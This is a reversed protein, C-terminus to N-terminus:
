GKRRSSKIKSEIQDHIYLAASLQSPFAQKSMLIGQDAFRLAQELKGDSLSVRASELALPFRYAIPQSEKSQVARDLLRRKFDGARQQNGESNYRDFLCGLVGATHWEYGLSSDDLQALTGQMAQLAKTASDSPAQSSLLVVINQLTYESLTHSKEDDIVATLQNACDTYLQANNYQIAVRSLFLLGNSRQAPDLAIAKRTSAVAASTQNELLDWQALLLLARAQGDQNGARAYEKFATDAYLHAEGGFKAFQKPKQHILGILDQSLQISVMAREKSAGLEQYIALSKKRLEIKREYTSEDASTKDLDDAMAAYTNAIEKDCASVAHAQRLCQYRLATNRFLNANELSKSFQGSRCLSNLSRQMANKWWDISQRTLRGTSVGIPIIERLHCSDDIAIEDVHQEMSFNLLRVMVEVFCGDQALKSWNECEKWISVKCSRYAKSAFEVNGQHIASDIMKVVASLNNGNQCQTSMETFFITERGKEKIQYIARFCELVQSITANAKTLKPFRKTWWDKTWSFNSDTARCQAYGNCIRVLQAPDVIASDLFAANYNCVLTNCHERSHSLNRLEYEKNLLDAIKMYLNFRKEGLAQSQYCNAPSGAPPISQYQASSLQKNLEDIQANLRAPNEIQTGTPRAILALLLSVCALVLLTTAGLLLAHGRIPNRWSLRHKADQSFAFNDIARSAEVATQFRKNPDKALSLELFQEIAPHMVSPQPSHVFSPEAQANIHAVMLDTANSDIFPPRGTVLFYLLCGLSYIDSRADAPKGRCVEPSMYALTGCVIGTATVQQKSSLDKALGFDFIKVTETGDTSDSVVICNAPTLDRHILGHAHMAGLGNAIGIMLREIDEPALQGNALRLNQVTEGKLFEMVIYPCGTLLEGSSYVRVINPHNISALSRAERQFRALAQNDTLYERRMVKIAVDRALSVQHARFVFAFGGQGLFQIDKLESAIPSKQLDAQIESAATMQHTNRSYAVEERLEIDSIGAEPWRSMLTM